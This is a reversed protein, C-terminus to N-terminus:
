GNKIVEIQMRRKVDQWDAFDDTNEAVFEKCLEVGKTINGDGIARFFDKTDQNVMLEMRTTKM